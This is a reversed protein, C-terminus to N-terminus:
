KKTAEELFITALNRLSKNTSNQLSQVRTQNAAAFISSHTGITDLQLLTALANEVIKHSDHHLLTSIAVIGDAAIIIQHCEPEISISFIIKSYITRSIIQTFLFCQGLCLNCLGAIGHLVLHPNPSSLLQLFLEVAKSEKLYEYNLPDYSFNALNATVQEQAEPISLFYVLEILIEFLFVSKESSKNGFTFYSVSMRRKM